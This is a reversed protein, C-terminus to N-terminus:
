TDVEGVNMREYWRKIFETNDAAWENFCGRGCFYQDRYDDYIATTGERIVANCQTCYAFPRATSAVMM